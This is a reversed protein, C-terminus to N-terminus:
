NKIEYRKNIEKIEFKFYEKSKEVKKKCIKLKFIKSDNFGYKKQFIDLIMKVPNDIDSSLNSFGFELTLDLDCEKNILLKPLLLLVEKQYKKYKDTKYRRGKWAENVSLPKINIKHM